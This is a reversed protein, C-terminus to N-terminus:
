RKADAQGALERIDFDRTVTTRVRALLDCRAQTAGPNGPDLVLVDDFFKSVAPVLRSLQDVVRTFDSQESAALIKPLVEDHVRSLSLAAPASESFTLASGPAPAPGGTEGQKVLINDVRKTLEVLKAFDERGRLTAVVNLRDLIQPLTWGDFDTPSVNHRRVAWIENPSYGRDELWLILREQLFGYTAKSQGVAQFLDALSLPLPREALIRFIGSAARRFGFPDRSGTPAEGAELLGRITDLRDALAVVAGDVGGPIAGDASVPRYHEAVSRALEPDAGEARLLLGGVVGQLEPFEGVLGTVLDCKSLSAARAARVPDGGARPAIAEAIGAVRRVKEAYSGLKKHFVVRELDAAREALPRKRDEEWFFRADALRGVVVWENGRRVHGGPDRDTDAVSLFVPLLAPGRQVGFSKQHHRLTTVLIERPLDLFADDFRGVVVGPWEVLDKVEDLLADDAVLEGGAREAAAVLADRLTSRREAPDVVVKAERLADAYRTPDAIAVEGESLFRHGPSTRGARVGLLEVALVEAGHLVVLTHVPRVWRHEGTGWRMTKPFSMGAVAAPLTAALVDGLSKGTVRRTFGSYAGKDTELRLLDEPAIGQKRAFGAGAPTAKGDKDFAVAAAPGLVTEERDAQRGAVEDIRVALRRPGGWAVSSGHALGARDLIQIALAALDRAAPGIMRAPIEECGIEILLPAKV